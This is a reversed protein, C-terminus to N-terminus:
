QKVSLSNNEPGCLFFVSTHPCKYLIFVWVEMTLKACFIKLSGSSGPSEGSLNSSGWNEGYGKARYFNGFDDRPHETESNTKM